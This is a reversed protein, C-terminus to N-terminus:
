QAAELFTGTCNLDQDSGTIADEEEIETRAREWHEKEKGSPRGEEEWIRYARERVRQEKERADPM